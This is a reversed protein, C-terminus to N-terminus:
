TTIYQICSPTCIFVWWFCFSIFFPKLWYIFGSPRHLSNCYLSLSILPDKFWINFFVVVKGGYFFHVIGLRYLFIWQSCCTSMFVIFYIVVRRWIKHCTESLSLTWKAYSAILSLIGISSTIQIKCQIKISIYIKRYFFIIYANGISMM